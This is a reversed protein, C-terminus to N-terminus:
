GAKRPNSPLTIPGYVRPEIHIPSNGDTSDLWMARSQDPSQDVNCVESVVYLPRRKSEEFVRGVYDGLLGIACMQMGSLGLMLAIWAFSSALTWSAM